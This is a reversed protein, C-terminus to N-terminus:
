FDMTVSIYGRRGLPDYTGGAGSRTRDTEWAGGLVAPAAQATPTSSLPPIEDFLNEIGVRVTYREGFQYSGTLTFLQYSQEIGRQTTAPNTAALANKITPWYQHTLSLSFADRFYNMTTFVRYEYGQCQMQLACGNTGKWDIWNARPSERTQSEINYNGQLNVGLGGFDYMKSWDVSVDVGSFKVAGLNTFVTDISATGGSFPNRVLANCASTSAGPNFAPSLCREMVADGTEVAIMDEIEITYYDVTLRFDELFEMAVGLTFTDAQEEHLNVNGTTNAQGLGGVTPHDSLNRNDYYAEAGIPGMIQRCLAETAQAGALGNVNTMPATPDAGTNASYPGGNRRSCQDGFISTAGFISFVQSRVSYLEALNPARHARNVGGRLRYRPFFGWDIMAKWTDVAGVTSFDSVRAGLEVNFHNAMAPGDGVIPILLEGYLDSVDFEGGYGWQPFLGMVTENISDNAVLQDPTYIISADRYGTGLSYQLPGSGMEALTGAINAEFVNQEVTQTNHLTAGLAILCDESPTFNRVVPLGTTCQAVGSQFGGGAPNGAQLFGMGFNPSGIIDRWMELKGVGRQRTLSDTAGTSLSMDWSHEGLSGELGVMLNYISTEVDSGRARDQASRLFDLPRNIMLDMNPQPRNAMLYAVEPPVPWAEAETCGLVGDALCNLGYRGGPLYDPHTVDANVGTGGPANDVGYDVSPTYLETGHPFPAGHVGVADSTLGLSSQTNTKTFMAQAVVSMSDSVDFTGRGFASYRDLPSSSWQYFTNETIRGDVLRHRFPLGPFDPHYEIGNADFGGYSGLYEPAAGATNLAGTGGALGGFVTGTGDPTRNILYQAQNTLITTGPVRHNYIQDVAFQAM